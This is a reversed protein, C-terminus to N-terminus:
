LWKYVLDQIYMCINYICLIFKNIKWWVLNGPMFYLKKKIRYLSFLSDIWNILYFYIVIKLNEINVKLGVYFNIVNLDVAPPNAGRSTLLTKIM